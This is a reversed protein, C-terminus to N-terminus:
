KLTQNPRPGSRPPVRVHVVWSMQIYHRVGSRALNLQPTSSVTDNFLCHPNTVNKSNLRMKKVQNQILSPKNRAWGEMGGQKRFHLKELTAGLRSYFEYHFMEPGGM